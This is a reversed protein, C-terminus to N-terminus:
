QWTQKHTIRWRRQRARNMAAPREEPPVGAAMFAAASRLERMLSLSVLKSPRGSAIAELALARAQDEISGGGLLDLGEVGLLEGVQYSISANLAAAVGEPSLDEIEAGIKSSLALRISEASVTGDELGLGANRLGNIVRESAVELAVDIVAQSVSGSDVADEYSRVAEVTERNITDGLRRSRIAKEM